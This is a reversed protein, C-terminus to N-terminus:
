HMRIDPTDLQDNGEACEIGISLSLHCQDLLM